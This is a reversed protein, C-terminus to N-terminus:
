SLQSALHGYAEDRTMGRAEPGLGARKRSDLLGQIENWKLYRPTGLRLARSEIEALHEVYELRLFAEDRFVLGPLRRAFAGDALVADRDKTSILSALSM